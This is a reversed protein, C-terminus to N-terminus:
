FCRGVSRVVGSELVAPGDAAWDVVEVVQTPGVVGDKQQWSM